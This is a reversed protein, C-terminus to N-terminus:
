SRFQQEASECHGWKTQSVRWNQGFQPSGRFSIIGNSSPWLQFGNGANFGASFFKQISAKEYRVRLKYTARVEGSILQSGVSLPSDSIQRAQWGDLGPPVM